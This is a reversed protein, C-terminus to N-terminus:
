LSWRYQYYLLEDYSCMRPSNGWGEMWNLTIIIRDYSMVLFDGLSMWIFHVDPILYTIPFM